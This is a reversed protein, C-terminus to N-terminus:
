PTAEDTDTFLPALARAAVVEVMNVEFTGWGAVLDRLVDEDITVSRGDALTITAQPAPLTLGMQEGQKATFYLPGADHTFSVSWVEDKPRWKARHYRVTGGQDTQEQEM